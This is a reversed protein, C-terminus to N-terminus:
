ALKGEKSISTEWVTASSGASIVVTGPSAFQPRVEHLGPTLIFERTFTAWKREASTALTVAAAGYPVATAGSGISNFDNDVEITLDAEVDTGSATSLITSVLTKLKTVGDGALYYVFNGMDGWTTATTSPAVNRSFSATLPMTLGYSPVTNFVATPSAAQLATITTAALSGSNIIGINALYGSSSNVAVPATAASATFAVWEWDSSTTSSAITGFRISDNATTDSSDNTGSFVLVDDIYLKITPSTAGSSTIRYTHYVSTNLQAEYLHKAGGVGCSLSVSNNTLAFQMSRDMSDDRMEFNCFQTIIATRISSSNLRVKFEVTEQTLNVESLNAAGTKSYFGTAASTAINLVGNSVAGNPTGNSAFTYSHATPLGSAAYFVGTTGWTPDNRKSGFIWNGGLGPNTVFTQATSATGETSGDYKLLLQDLVAGNASNVVMEAIANHWASVGSRTASGQVTTSTKTSETAAGAQTQKVTLKGAGSELYLELGLLRNFAIYDGASLNYYWATASLQGLNCMSGPFALVNGTGVQYSFNGFKKTSSSFDAAAVDASSLSAANIIAGQNILKALVNTTTGAAGAFSDFDLGIALSASPAAITALNTTPPSYWQAGGTVAQLMYRLRRLEGRLDTPLSETGVDGPSVTTQFASLNPSDSGVGTPDLSALINDFEGNYHAAFITNGAAETFFRPFTAPM